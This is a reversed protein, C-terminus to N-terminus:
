GQGLHHALQLPGWDQVTSHYWADPDEFYQACGALDKIVRFSQGTEGSPFGHWYDQLLLAREYIWPLEGQESQYCIFFDESKDKFYYYLPGNNRYQFVWGKL